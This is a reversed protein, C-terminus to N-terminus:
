SGQKSWFRSSALISHCPKKEKKYFRHVVDTGSTQEAQGPSFVEQFCSSTYCSLLSMVIFQKVSLVTRSSYVVVSSFLAAQRAERAEHNVVGGGTIRKM